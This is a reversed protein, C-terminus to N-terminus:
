NLSKQNLNQEEAALGDAHTHTPTHTHTHHALTLTLTHTDRHQTHTHTHTLHPTHTHTHTHTHSHPTHPTDRHSHTHTHTHQTHTTHTLSHTHRDTHTHTHTHALTLHTDRHTHHQTLSHTHPTHTTHSTPTTHTHPPHHRTHTRTHTDTHTETHSHTHTHTHAHTHTETHERHTLSYTHTYAHGLFHPLAPPPLVCITNWGAGSGTIQAGQWLCETVADPLERQDVLVALLVMARGIQQSLKTTPNILDDTNSDTPNNTCVPDTWVTQVNTLDEACKLIMDSRTRSENQTLRSWDNLAVQSSIWSIKINKRGIIDAYLLIIWQSIQCSESKPFKPPRM